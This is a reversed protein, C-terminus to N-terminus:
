GYTSHLTEWHEFLEASVKEAYWDEEGVKATFNLTGHHALETDPMKDVAALAEGFTWKPPIPEWRGVANEAWYKELRWNDVNYSTCREHICYALTTLFATDNARCAPTTGGGGGHHGGGAHDDTSCALPASGIVSRCAYACSPQYMQIGFGIFASVPAVLALGVAPALLHALRMSTTSRTCPLMVYM